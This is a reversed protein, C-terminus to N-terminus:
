QEAVEPYPANPDWRGWIVPSLRPVWLTWTTIIGKPLFGVAEIARRSPINNPDTDIYVEAEPERERAWRALLSLSAKFLGRGQYEDKTRCYFIWYVPLKRISRPLHAPGATKPLSMWAYSAWDSGHHWVVGAFGKALFRRFVNQLRDEQSFFFGVTEQDLWAWELPHHINYSSTWHTPLLFVLFDKRKLM